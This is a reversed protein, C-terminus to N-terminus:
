TPLVSPATANMSKSGLFGLFWHKVLLQTMLKQRIELCWTDSSLGKAFAEQHSNELIEYASSSRLVASSSRLVVWSSRLVASSSRLVVWSSRLVVWGGLIVKTSGFIVPTGGLIVPTGSFIVTIEAYVFQLVASSIVTTCGTAQLYEIIHPETKCKSKISHNLFFVYVLFIM